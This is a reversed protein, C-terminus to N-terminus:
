VPIVKWVKYTDTQYVVCDYKKKRMYTCIEDRWIDFYIVVKFYIINRIVELIFQYSFKGM